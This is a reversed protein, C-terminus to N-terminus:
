GGNCGHFPTIPFRREAEPSASDAEQRVVDRNRASGDTPGPQPRGFSTGATGGIAGSAKLPSPRM